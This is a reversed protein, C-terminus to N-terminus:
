QNIAHKSTVSVSRAPHNEPLRVTGKGFLNERLTSAEYETRYSGRAQLVPVVHDIFDAFTGPSTAQIINFGDADGENAMAELEDAIQEPTGVIKSAGIGLGHHLVAERVTWKKETSATTYKQLFGRAADTEINEVYDEPNYQSFDVGTHGSLLTITGEYSLCSTLEEYKKWAESETAGVIPTIAPFIKIDEPNRGFKKTRERLDSTFAQLEPISNQINTFVAEAHKAAFDRGRPSAGAQFLVPTRQPSPEVLHVGPISFYEGKHEIPHVKEADAYVGTEKNAIIADEEWSYEWLKYVVDMYEEAREYRTNHAIQNELGLNIAESKLYSTVINWAVRGKTLHDLTSFQRALEYPQIYTASHTPAFGLHDTAAAMASIQLMKDHLPVQAGTKIASKYSDQYVDYIGIVDALFLADFKGHELLQALEVWYDIDGHRHGQDGPYRWLGPSHPAVSNQTFGNLRIQKKM